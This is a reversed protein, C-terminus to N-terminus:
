KDDDGDDAAGVTVPEQPQESGRDLDSTADADAANDQDGIEDVDATAAAETGDGTDLAAQRRRSMEDNSIIHHLGAAIGFMVFISGVTIDFAYADFVGLSFFGVVVSAAVSAALDRDRENSAAKYSRRALSYAMALCAILASVGIIGTEILSTLYQNDAAFTGAGVFTGFGQGFLPKRQVLERIIEYDETRASVRAGQIDDGSWNSALDIAAQTADPAMVVVLAVVPFLSLLFRFRRQSTWRPVLMLVAVLIGLYASRSLSLIGALVAAGTAATAMLRIRQNRGYAMVHLMLPLVLAVSTGLEIPHRATGTARSLGLRLQTGTRKIGRDQFGPLRMQGVIDFSFFGQVLAAFAMFAGGIVVLGVVTDLNRRTRVVDVMLLVVGVLALLKVLNRDAGRIQDGLLPERLGLGYTLVVIVFYVAIVKAMPSGTRDQGTTAARGSAWLALCGLGILMAPTVEYVSLALRPSVFYLFAIYVAVAAIESRGFAYIGAVIVGFVMLVGLLPSFFTLVVAIAVIAVGRIWSNSGPDPRGGLRTWFSSTM